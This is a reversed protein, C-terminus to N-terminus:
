GKRMPPMDPLGLGAWHRVAAVLRETGTWDGDLPSQLMITRMETHHHARSSCTM